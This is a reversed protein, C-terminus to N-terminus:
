IKSFNFKPSINQSQNIQVDLLLPRNDLDRSQYFNLLTNLYM